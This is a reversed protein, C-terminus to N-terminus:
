QMKSLDRVPLGLYHIPSVIEPAICNCYFRELSPLLKQKWFDENFQITDVSIGKTTYIVFDCWQRGTIALQGQVQSYYPHSHKLGVHSGTSTKVLEAFFDTNECAEEVLVDKYKYPCKVEALGYHHQRSPDYVYSDPSAGLFPHTECIVFGAKCFTMEFRGLSKQHTEYKELALSENSKGWDTAASTFQRSDIVRLVLSDPPTNEKRRYVEGFLSATLRYKRANYWSASQHQLKTNREIERIKELPLHLSSIFAKVRDEVESKSPLTMASTDSDSHESWVQTSSDLLMSIGIGMGRVKELYPVLQVSVNGKYESPRPDFSAIPKLEHKITRGYVHKLFDTESMKASNEKRKRPKVWQCIFSTIPLPTDEEDVNDNTGPTGTVHFPVQSSSISTLAHLLASM